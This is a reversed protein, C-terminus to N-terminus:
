DFVGGAQQLAEHRLAAEGLVAAHDVHVDNRASTQPM